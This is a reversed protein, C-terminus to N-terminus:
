LFISVVIQFTAFENRSNKKINEIFEKEIKKRCKKSLNKESFKKSGIREMSRASTLTSRWLTETSAILCSEQFYFLLAQSTMLPHGM